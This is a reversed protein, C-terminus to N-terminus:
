KDYFDSKLVAVSKKYVVIMDLYYKVEMNIVRTVGALLLVNKANKFFSILNDLTQM